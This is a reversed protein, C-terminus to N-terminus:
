DRPEGKKVLEQRIVMETFLLQAKIDAVMLFGFVALATVLSVETIMCLATAVGFLIGVAMLRFTTSSM